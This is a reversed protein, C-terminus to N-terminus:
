EVGYFNDPVVRLGPMGNAITQLRMRNGAIAQIEGAQLAKLLADSIGAESRNLTAAKLTRTLFMDGADRATVGIRVGPRDADAVSTIPSTATVIFTNQALAYTQSFDVQEARAPDFAVFGIDATGNRVSDIVGQVNPAGTIMMPVGAQKALGASLAAAPGRTEGSAPDVFAQVPNSAIYTARLTGTPALTAAPTAAFACSGALLLALSGLKVQMTQM